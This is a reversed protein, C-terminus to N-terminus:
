GMNHRKRCRARPKVSMSSRTTIAIMAMRIPRSRGATCFTRSAAARIFHEFLRFCSPRAAWLKSDVYWNRGGPSHVRDVSPPVLRGDKLATM